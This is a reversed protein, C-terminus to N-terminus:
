GLNVRCYTHVQEAASEDQADSTGHCFATPDFLGTQGVVYIRPAMYVGYLIEYLSFLLHPQFCITKLGGRAGDASMDGEGDEAM